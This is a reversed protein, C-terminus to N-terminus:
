ATEWNGPTWTRRLVQTEAGSDRHIGARRRALAESSATLMQTEHTWDSDHGPPYTVATAYEVVPEDGDFTM